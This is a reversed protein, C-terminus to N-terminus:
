SRDGSRTALGARPIGEEILRRIDAARYCVTKPGLRVPKIPFRGSKIAEYWGSKSVPIPGNPKIISKLRLLGSEPISKM